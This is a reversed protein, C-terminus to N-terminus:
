SLTMSQSKPECLNFQTAAVNRVGRQHCLFDSSKRRFELDRFLPMLMRRAPGQEHRPEIMRGISPERYESWALHQLTGAPSSVVRRRIVVRCPSKYLWDHHRRRIAPSQTM